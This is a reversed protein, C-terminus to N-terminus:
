TGHSLKGHITLTNFPFIHAKNGNATMLNLLVML